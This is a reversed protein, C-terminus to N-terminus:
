NESGALCFSSGFLHLFLLSLPLWSSLSELPSARGSQVTSGCATPWRARQHLCLLLEVFISRNLSFQWAAWARCSGDSLATRGSASSALMEWLGFSSRVTEDGARNDVWSAREMFFMNQTGTLEVSFCPWMGWTNSGICLSSAMKGAHLQQRCIWSNIPTQVKRNQFWWAVPSHGQLHGHTIFLLVFCLLM